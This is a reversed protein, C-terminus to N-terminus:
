GTDFLETHVRQSPVGLAALSTTTDDILRTSGCVFYDLRDRVFVPPLLHHLMSPTVPARETETVTMALQTQLQVLEDRFMTEGPQDALLVRVPRDDGDRAMTRLMSLMPTIGVGGAVLVVGAGSPPTMDGHPGDLWVQDGLRLSQLTAASRGGHRFTFTPRDGDQTASSITYPHEVIPVRHTRLWAFQGPAFQMRGNTRRPRLTLTSVTPSDDTVDVVVYSGAATMPSILWRGILVAGVFGAIGGLLAGEAPDEVLHHLLVIHATSAALVLAALVIHAWRWREYRSRRTAGSAAGLACAAMLAALGFMAVTPAGPGLLAVNAPNGIVVAAVHAAMMAVTLLGLYRHTGQVTSIGFARTISQVRSTLVLVAALLSTALLGTIISAEPWFGVREATFVRAAVPGCLALALLATWATRTAAPTM